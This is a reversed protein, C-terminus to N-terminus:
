TSRAGAEQKRRRGGAGAHSPRRQSNSSTSARTRSCGRLRFRPREGSVARYLRPRCLEGRAQEFDAVSEGEFIAEVIEVVAAAPIDPLRSRPRPVVALAGAGGRLPQLCGGPRRVRRLLRSRSLVTEPRERAAADRDHGQRAAGGARRRRAREAADAPLPYLRGLEEQGELRQFLFLDAGGAEPRVTVERDAM